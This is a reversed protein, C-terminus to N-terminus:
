TRSPWALGATTVMSLFGILLTGPIGLAPIFIVGALLGGVASGFLEFGYVGGARGGTGSAVSVATIFIAGIGAGLAALLLAFVAFMMMSSLVSYDFFLVGAVALGSFLPLIVAATKGAARAGARVAWGTGFGLGAMFAGALGALTFYMSGALMQWGILLVVEIVISGFGAAAALAFPRSRASFRLAIASLAAALAAPYFFFLQFIRSDLLGLWENGGTTRAMWAGIVHIYIGPHNMASGGEDRHLRSSILQMREAGLSATLDAPSLQNSVIGRRDLASSIVAANSTIPSNKHGALVLNEDLPMLLTLDFQLRASLLIRSIAARDDYNFALNPPNAGATFATIGGSALAEYADHLFEGTFLREGAASTPLPQNIIILDYERRHARLWARPEASFVQLRPLTAPDLGFRRELELWGPDPQIFDLREIPHRLMEPAIGSYAGGIVLARKPDPLLSLPIHALPMERDPDPFTAAPAGDQFITTQGSDRVVAIFGSRTDMAALAEGRGRHFVEFTGGRISFYLAPALFLGLTILLAKLRRRPIREDFLPTLGPAVSLLLLTREPPLPHAWALTYVVGAALAGLADFLYARGAGTARDPQLAAAHSFGAGCAAAPFGLLLFAGALMELPGAAEGPLLGLLPSLLFSAILYVLPLAALLPFSLLVFWEKRVDRGGAVAGIGSLLLWAALALAVVLENGGFGALLRRLLWAQYGLATFGVLFAFADARTRPSLPPRGETM